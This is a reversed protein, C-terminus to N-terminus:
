PPPTAARVVAEARALTDAPDSTTDVVTAQPWPASARRLVEAVEVTAESAGGGLRLRHRIRAAAVDAPCDCHVETLVSATAGAVSRADGRRDADSWSADLVVSEGGALLAAARGLLGDYVARVARPAYRGTGPEDVVGPTTRPVLDDRVVDSSLLVAGLRDALGAAVTSKGTGPSGGVVVMRVVGASLHRHAMAHLARAADAASADGQAHRLCTVKARVHARYAVHLHALSEPWTDASLERYLALFRAAHEPHGLRELDMALFAVDALVDGHRLRDDFELCDLVRPGDDLMFVDEAMLDGHGDVAHGDAVRRELLGRRGRLYRRAAAAVAAHEAPDLVPGAFPATQEIGMEWLATVADAGSATDIEPGRLACSHFAVLRHALHRLDDDVAPGDLRTSLRRDEPMRRMVVFHEVVPRGGPGPGQQPGEREDLALEGVGLYVDPALRRNLDVEARCAELRREPTSFDLFATRLPKKRKLVLDGLFVVTSVHTEV